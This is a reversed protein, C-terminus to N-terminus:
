KRNGKPRLIAWSISVDRPIQDTVFRDPSPRQYKTLFKGIANAAAKRHHVAFAVHVLTDNSDTSLLVPEPACNIM